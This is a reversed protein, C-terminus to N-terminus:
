IYGTHMSHSYLRACLTHPCAHSVMLEAVTLHQLDAISKGKKRMVEVAQILAEESEGLRVRGGPAGVRSVSHFHLSLHMILTLGLSLCM